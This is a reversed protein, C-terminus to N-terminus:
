GPRRCGPPASRPGRRLHLDADGFLEADDVQQEVHHAVLVQDFLVALLLADVDLDVPGLERAARRDVIRQQGTGDVNGTGADARQQGDPVAGV